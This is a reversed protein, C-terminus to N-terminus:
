RGASPLQRRLGEIASAMMRDHNWVLAPRAVYSALALLRGRVVVEQEFLLRSGTGDAEILWRVSGELDGSVTTELRRPERHVAHLHLELEYPLASRCVVLADDPGLSAVARVQPWWSPYHELDELVAHVPDPPADLRWDGRFSYTRSM